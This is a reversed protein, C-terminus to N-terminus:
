KSTLEFDKQTMEETVDLKLESNVNYKPPVIPKYDAVMPSEPNSKDYKHEGIKEFGEIKVIKSGPPITLAYAGEKIIASATPGDGAAPFFEITGDVLPKGDLKVQGQLHHKGDGSCGVLTLLAVACLGVRLM